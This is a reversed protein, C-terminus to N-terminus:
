AGPIAQITMVIPLLAMALFGYAILTGTLRQNMPHRESVLTERHLIVRVDGLRPFGEDPPTWDLSRWSWGILLDGILVVDPCGIDM